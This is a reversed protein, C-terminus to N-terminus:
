ILKRRKLMNFASQALEKTSFYVVGAKQISTSFNTKQSSNDIEVYWKKQFLGDSGWVFEIHESDHECKFNVLARQVQVLPLAKEAAEKNRIASYDPLGSVSCGPRIDGEYSIWWGEGKFYDLPNNAKSELEEIKNLLKIQEAKLKALEQKINM